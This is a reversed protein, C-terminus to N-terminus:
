MALELNKLEGIGVVVEYRFEFMAIMICTFAVNLASDQNVWNSKGKGGRWL